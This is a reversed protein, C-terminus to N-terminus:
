AALRLHITRAEDPAYGRGDVGPANDAVAKCFAIFDGASMAGKVANLQRTTWVVNDFAFDGPYDPDAKAIKHDLSMDLGPTLPQGTYYCKWNQREALELLQTAYSSSRFQNRATNEAWHKLCYITTALRDGTCDYCQGLKEKRAKRAKRHHSRKDRCEGCYATDSVSRCDICLRSARMKDRHAQSKEAAEDACRRCRISTGDDGRPSGCSKCLGGEIRSRELPAYAM